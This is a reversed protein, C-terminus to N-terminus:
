HGSEPCQGRQSLVLLVDGFEHRLYGHELAAAYAGELLAKGAVSELLQLHSSDRDHFGSLVADVVRVPREAGIVLDTWGSAARVSGDVHAASELARVSTTGVAVVRGGLARALNVREATPRSVEFRESYPPEGRELSSVGTHLVVPAVDIGRAVLRTIMGATFPRGASPMEASGPEVAYVNQYADLPWNAHAHRYRIPQGHSDLYDLLDRGGLHLDAVWLRSGVYTALLEAEAGGPLLLRQGAHGGRRRGGTTRLEVIWRGPREGPAPTSLHLLLRAGGASRAPLAAPLTRSTNLVLVDGPGLLEPLEDFHGHYLAGAAPDAVLMLVRDRSLGREEPPLVAERLEEAAAPVASL